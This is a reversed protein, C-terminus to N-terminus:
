LLRRHIKRLRSQGPAGDRLLLHGGGGRRGPDGERLLSDGELARRGRRLPQGKPAARGHRRLVPLGGLLWSGARLDAACPDPRQEQARWARFAPHKPVCYEQGMRTREEVKERIFGRYRHVVRPTDEPPRKSYEVAMEHVCLIKVSLPDIHLGNAALTEEPAALFKERFGPEMTWLELARKAEAVERIYEADATQPHVIKKIETDSMANESEM